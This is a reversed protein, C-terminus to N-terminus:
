VLRGVFREATDLWVLLAAGFTLCFVVLGILVNLPMAVFFINAQPMLKSLVGIGAYFVLGFVVLPAAMQMAVAFGRGVLELALVAFDGPPYYLGPPLVQYSGAIGQLFGHHLGSAFILAVAVVSLFTGFIAGQQNQAPDYNMAMALGTQMAIMQGAVSLAMMLFRILTGLALGIAVEGGVLLAAAFFGEPQPAARPSLVPLLAWTMLLAFALRIRAPPGPNAFGPLLMVVSGVRAFVLVFAFVSGSLAIDM